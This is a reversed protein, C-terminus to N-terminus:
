ETMKLMNRKHLMAADELWEPHMTIIRRLNSGPPMSWQKSAGDYVVGAGKSM